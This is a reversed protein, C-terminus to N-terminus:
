PSVRVIEVSRIEGSLRGRAFEDAINPDIAKAAAIDDQGHQADGQRVEAIGRGYLSWPAGPRAKLAETYDRIAETLRGLRAEVFGRSDLFQPAGPSLRPRRRL